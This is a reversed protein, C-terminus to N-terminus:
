RMRKQTGLAQDVIQMAIGRVHQKFEQLDVSYKESEMQSPIRNRSLPAPAVIEPVLIHAKHGESLKRTNKTVDLTVRERWGGMRFNPVEVWADVGHFVDLPTGVASFFLAGEEPSLPRYSREKLLINIQHVLEKAFPQSPNKPDEATHARVFDLAVDFPLFGRGETGHKTRLAAFDREFRRLRETELARDKGPRAETPNGFMDRELFHGSYGHVESRYEVM